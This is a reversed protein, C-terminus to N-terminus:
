TMVPAITCQLIQSSTVIQSCRCFPNPSLYAGAAQADTCTQRAQILQGATVYTDIVTNYTVASPKLGADTMEQLIGSIASVGGRRSYGKLLINFVRVDPVIKQQKMDQLLQRAEDLQGVSICANMGAPLIHIYKMRRYKMRTYTEPGSQHDNGNGHVCCSVSWSVCLACQGYM